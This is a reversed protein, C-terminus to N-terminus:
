VQGKKVWDAWEPRDLVFQENTRTYTGSGHMRGVLKMKPTDIYCRKPDIVFSDDVHAQVVRGIVIAQNPSFTLSTHVRCEFAVPSGAIRPPAVKVSPVTGLGALKLEDVGPPADICTVNMAEANAENVFNVVFEASNLINHGTDKLRKEAHAQIGIVIIPPNTGMANFFSYPAANPTGKDDLTTVWAIPRPVVTSILIKYRDNQPMTEFDFEM